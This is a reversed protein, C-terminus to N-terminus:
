DTGECFLTEQVDFTSTLYFSTCSLAVSCTLKPDDFGVHEIENFIYIFRYRQMLIM